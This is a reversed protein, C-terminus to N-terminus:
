DDIAQIVWNGDQYVLIQECGMDQASAEQSPLSQVVIHGQERLQQIQQVQEAQHALDSIPAFIKQSRKDCAMFSVLTILDTSFGTAPRPHGFAEGIHDYRGGQAIAQGHEPVYASFVAGTHYSYGRLEALDVHLNQKSLATALTRLDDLASLVVDGAAEFVQEAESLVELGGHLEPLRSLMTHLTPHIQWDSLLANIESLAKRQMADFLRNEQEDDLQAQKCLERYIAVHGLDIYYDEIGTIRLTEQMLRLVEIDGAIGPYGYLEAGVQLPTRSHSFGDPRTHLVTGLYCFRNPAETKLQHADLRAIQPTIDARIGMLRGTLQDTLKFTQLDLDAGAGSLLSDLYEIFPPFILEYGWSTYTDLLRRRVQELCAAQQPLLEHVGEPLLWRNVTPM